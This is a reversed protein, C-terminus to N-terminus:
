AFYHPCNPSAYFIIIMRNGSFLATLLKSQQAKLPRMPDFLSSEGLAAFRRLLPRFHEPAPLVLSSMLQTVLALKTPLGQHSVVIDVVRGLNDSYEQLWLGIWEARGGM